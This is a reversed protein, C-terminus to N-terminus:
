PRRAQAAFWPVVLRVAQSGMLLAMSGLMAVRAGAAYRWIGRYLGADIAGDLACLLDTSGGIRRAGRVLRLRLNRQGTRRGALGLRGGAFRRCWSRLRRLFRLLRTM